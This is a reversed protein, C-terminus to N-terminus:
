KKYTIKGEQTFQGSGKDPLTAYLRIILYVLYYIFYINLTVM